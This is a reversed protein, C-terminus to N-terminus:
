ALWLIKELVENIKKKENCTLPEIPVSTIESSLGRLFCIYKLVSIWSKGYKFVKRLETVRKQLKYVTNIDKNCAANYLEVYLDPFANALSPVCGDGGFLLGPGCLDENGVFYPFQHKQKLFLTEQLSAWDPTSDKFAVIKELRSLKLTTEPSINVNNFQPINYVVISSNINNCITEYHRIIEDQGTSQIYFAPTVVFYEAGIQELDKISEIIRNTSTEIVGTLLPVRNATIKQAEKVISYRQKATVCSGEGCSGMIFIGHIGKEIGYNIVSEFSSIDLAGGELFPTIIPPIVGHLKKM